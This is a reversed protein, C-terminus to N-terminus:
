GECLREYMYNYYRFDRYEWKNRHKWDKSKFYPSQEFLYKLKEKDSTIHTFMYGLLYFDRDSEDANSGPAQSFWVEQFRSNTLYHQKVLEYLLEIPKNNNASANTVIAPRTIVPRIMYTNLFQMLMDTHLTNISSSSINKGTLTVYRFSTKSPQYYEIESKSNKIYYIKSYSEIIDHRFLIRLGTGSFSFECYTYPKFLKLIEEARSDGSEIDFPVKFCHDVDIACINSAQISIGIGAYDSLNDILLYNLDVFDNENNPQAVIGDVRFPVKDKNVLCFKLGANVLYENNLINEVTELASM